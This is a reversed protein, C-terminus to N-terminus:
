NCRRFLYSRGCREKKCSTKCVLPIEYAGPVRYIDLQKDEAGHRKLADLAGDLLRDTIFSNFRSVIIAFKFGKANLKGEHIM